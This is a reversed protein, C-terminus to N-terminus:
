KLIGTLLYDKRDYFVFYNLITQKNAHINYFPTNQEIPSIIYPMTQATASIMSIFKQIDM